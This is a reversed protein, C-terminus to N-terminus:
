KISTTSDQTQRYLSEEPRCNSCNDDDANVTAIGRIITSGYIFPGKQWNESGKNFLLEAQVDTNFKIEDVLKEAAKETERPPSWCHQLTNQNNLNNLQLVPNSVLNANNENSQFVTDEETTEVDVEDDSSFEKLTKLEQFEIVKNEFLKVSETFSSSRIFPHFASQHLNNNVTSELSNSPNTNSIESSISGRPWDDHIKINQNQPM